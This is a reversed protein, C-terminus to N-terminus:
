AELKWLGRYERTLLKSAEADGIIVENVPDWKIPRNVLFSILALHGPTASRHATEVPTVTPKRSKVCDLFNRHHGATEYLRTKIVDDGLKPPAAADVVKEIEVGNEKVKVRKKIEKRLEPKSADYSGRNVHVWGDTGIWKTGMAIDEHGGAIVMTIDGAYLAEARYKTATNWIDTRPPMEVQIPKVESPGSSDMDMGWHAIDCHHGIWDLLQGGGVNYDWRWNKHVRCEIYDQMTSPGIWMEYDLESPPATVSRKDKTGAFDNHGAPLGVEVRTLKGILGNRVVEAGIRFNDESRQWSGTQWIRGYQQVAKVIAQQEAITRALPKEGYIDKGNKAAEISTLAHWHDPLALMVTDIDKRAMVERYDHYGKCDTNKYAGNITGLAKDLNRKDIDCAAVIQCDTEALFKNTNSPGMMGWGFVAMTIKNSPANQGFISSPVITPFGLAVAGSKKLFSRRSSHPIRKM